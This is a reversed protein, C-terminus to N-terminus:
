GLKAGVGRGVSECCGVIMGLASGERIGVVSGVSTGEADRIGVVLKCWLNITENVIVALTAGIRM